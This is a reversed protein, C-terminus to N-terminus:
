LHSRNRINLSGIRHDVVCMNVWPLEQIEGIFRCHRNGAWLLSCSIDVNLTTVHDMRSTINAGIFNEREGRAMVVLDVIHSLGM